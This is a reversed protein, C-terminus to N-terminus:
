SITLGGRRRSLYRYAVAGGVLWVWWPIQRAFADVKVALTPFSPIQELMGASMQQGNPFQIVQGQQQNQM